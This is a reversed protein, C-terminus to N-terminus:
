RIALVEKVSHEIRARSVMPDAHDFVTFRLCHLIQEFGIGSGLVRRRNEMRSGAVEQIDPCPVNEGM